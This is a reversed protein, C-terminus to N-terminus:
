NKYDLIMKELLPMISSPKFNFENKIREISIVPASYEPADKTVEIECGTIRSIENIIERSSTNKGMAVNYIKQTGKLAIEPLIRVLDDISVFDRKSDLSSRLSIKKTEIADKILSPIFLNKPTGVGTVNSPRVIKINPKNSAMCITEGLLKSINYLQNKDNPNIEINDDESATKTNYYFRGSSIYLFSEFDANKLIKNLICTHAEVANYPDELFNSIGVSYIVHGLSKKYINEKRLNPANCSFNKSQLYNVLYTGIFGSSGLVTFEM